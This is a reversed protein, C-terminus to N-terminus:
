RLQQHWRPQGCRCVLFIQIIKRRIRIRAVVVAAAVFGLYSQECFQRYISCPNNPRLAGPATGRRQDTGGDLIRSRRARNAQLAEFDALFIARHHRHALVRKMRPAQFRPNLFTGSARVAALVQLFDTHVLVFFVFTCVICPM